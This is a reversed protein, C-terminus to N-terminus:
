CVRSRGQYHRVVCYILAQLPLNSSLSGVNTFCRDGFEPRRSFTYRDVLNSWPIFMLIELLFLRQSHGSLYKIHEIEGCSAQPTHAHVHTCATIVARSCYCRNCSLPFCLPYPSSLSALPPSLSFDSM